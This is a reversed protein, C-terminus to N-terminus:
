SSFGYGLRGLGSWSLGPCRPHPCPSSSNHFVRAQRSCSEGRLSPKESGRPNALTPIAGCALKGKSGSRSPFTASGAATPQLDKIIWSHCTFELEVGTGLTYGVDVKAWVKFGEVELVQLPVIAQEVTQARGRPFLLFLWSGVVQGKRWFCGGRGKGLSPNKNVKQPPSHGGGGLGVAQANYRVKGPEAQPRPIGLYSLPACEWEYSLRPSKSGHLM